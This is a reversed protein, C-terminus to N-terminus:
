FQIFYMSFIDRVQYPSVTKIYAAEMWGRGLYLTVAANFCILPYAPYMFREEKHNQASLIVLWLYLPALRMALITYPSSREPAAKVPGLRKKDVYSTVVLAPLSLIALLFLGNFNLILNLIYFNWPETGYLEPGKDSSLINYKVINWPVITLKGYALSDIAVVPVQSILNAM